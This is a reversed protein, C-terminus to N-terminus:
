RFLHLKLFYESIDVEVKTGYLKEALMQLSGRLLYAVAPQETKFQLEITEGDPAAEVM